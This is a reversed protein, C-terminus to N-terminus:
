QSNSPRNDSNGEDTVTSALEFHLGATRGTDDQQNEGLELIEKQTNETQGTAQGTAHTNISKSLAVLLDILNSTTVVDADKLVVGSAKFLTLTQDLVFAKRQEGTFNQIKEATDILEPLKQWVQVITSTTKLKRGGGFVLSLVTTVFTILVIILDLNATIWDLM